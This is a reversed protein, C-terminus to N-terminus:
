MELPKVGENKCAEPHGAAHRLRQPLHSFIAPVRRNMAFQLRAGSFAPMM